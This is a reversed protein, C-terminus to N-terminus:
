LGNRRGTAVKCRADNRQIERVAGDPRRRVYTEVGIQIRATRGTHRNGDAFPHISEFRFHLIASSIVPSLEAADANWWQLLEFMLGSMDAPPPPVYEGVRVRITRYRWADGQDMVEAAIIKSGIGFGRRRPLDHCCLRLPSLRCLQSIEKGM